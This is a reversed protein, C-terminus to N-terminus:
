PTRLFLRTVAMALIVAGVMLVLILQERNFHKM